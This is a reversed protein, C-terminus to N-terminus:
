GDYQFVWRGGVAHCVVKTGQVPVQGGVNLAVMMTTPPPPASPDPPNAPPTLDSTFTGPDGEKDTGTIRQPIIGYFAGPTTPYTKITTTVGLVAASAFPAFPTVRDLADSQNAVRERLIRTASM